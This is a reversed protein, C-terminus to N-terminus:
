YHMDEGASAQPKAAPLLAKFPGLSGDRTAAGVPGQGCPDTTWLQLAGHVNVVPTELREGDLVGKKKGGLGLPDLNKFIRNGLHM